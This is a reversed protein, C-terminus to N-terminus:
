SKRRGGNRKPDLLFVTLFEDGLNYYIVFFKDKFRTYFLCCNSFRNLIHRSAGMLRLPPAKNCHSIFNFSAAEFHIEPRMNGRVCCTVKRETDGNLADAGAVIVILTYMKLCNDSSDM